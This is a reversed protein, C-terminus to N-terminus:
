RGLAVLYHQFRAVDEAQEQQVYIQHLNGCIRLLMRSPSVPALYEDRVAYHERSLYNVCDLKSLLRGQNFVDIYIEAATSQYRCIFHGPLGIGAVPLRLRRALLLYFLSLNIPNGTRRDIVRNLYSNQPDFYEKENGAFGLEGFLYRNIAGLVQSAKANRDVRERLDAAFSDLLARYAEVNIEPYRTLALLWAGDELNLDEGQKLCFALFGNDAVQRDFYTIIEQARRRLLPDRSLAHPRLWGGVAPGLSILKSRIQRYVAPDDDGLLSILAARQSESFEIPLGIAAVSKM